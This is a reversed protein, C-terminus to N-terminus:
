LADKEFVIDRPDAVWAYCLNATFCLGRSHKVAKKQGCWRRRERRM